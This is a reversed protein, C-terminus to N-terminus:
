DNNFLKIMDPTVKYDIRRNTSRGYGQVIKLLLIVSCYVRRLKCKLYTLKSPYDPRPNFSVAKTVAYDQVDTHKRALINAQVACAPELQYFKMGMTLNIAADALPLSKTQANLIRQASKPWIVYAAAGGRDKYLRSISYETLALPEPDGLLKNQDYFELSIYGLDPGHSLAQLVDSIDDSLLVDDELILTPSNSKAAIGWAKRHSLACAIEGNSLPRAWSFRYNGLEAATLDDPTVADVIEGSLGLQELQHLQMERRSTATAVSIVLINIASM